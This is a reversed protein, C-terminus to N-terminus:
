QNGFQLNWTAFLGHAQYDAAGQFFSDQYHYFGYQLGLTSQESMQRTLGLNLSHLDFRPGLPLGLPLSQEYDVHQWSYSAQLTTQQNLLYTLALSQALQVGQYDDLRQHDVM